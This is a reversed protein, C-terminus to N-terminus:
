ARGGQLIDGFCRICIKQQAPPAPSRFMIAHTCHACQATEDADTRARDGVRLCVLYDAPEAHELSIIDAPSM